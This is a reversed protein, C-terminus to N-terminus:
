AKQLFNMIYLQVIFINEWRKRLDKENKLTMSKLSHYKM